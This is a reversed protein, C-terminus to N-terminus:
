PLIGIEELAIFNVLSPISRWSNNYGQAPQMKNIKEKLMTETVGFIPLVETLYNRSKMSNVFNLRPDYEKKYIYTIPFWSQYNTIPNIASIYNLVIDIEVVSQFEKTTTREKMMDAIISIRKSDRAIKGSSIFRMPHRFNVFSVDKSIAEDFYLNNILSCMIDWRKFKVSMANALIFTETLLFRLAEASLDNNDGKRVVQHIKNNFDSFFDLMFQNTHQTDQVLVNIATMFSKRFPLSEHIMRIAAEDPEEGENQLVTLKDLEELFFDFYDKTAFSLRHSSKDLAQELLNAKREVEFTDIASELLFSPTKGLLPKRLDPKEYIERLLIEFNEQYTTESSLDIYMRNKAYVPLYEKGTEFNREFVIPIFRNQGLDDYLSPTIIQTETGVGGQRDNAKEAYLKDSILLVRNISDDKVMQEMFDYKDQGVKLNWVDLIVDVGSALLSKALDLVKQKHEDNTWSYSIFVKKVELTELIVVVKLSKLM